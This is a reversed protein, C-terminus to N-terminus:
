KKPEEASLKANYAILLKAAHFEPAYGKGQFTYGHISAFQYVAMEDKMNDDLAFVLKSLALELTEIQRKLEANEESRANWGDDFGDSYFAAKYLDPSYFKPNDSFRQQIAEHRARERADQEPM